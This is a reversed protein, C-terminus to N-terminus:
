DNKYIKCIKCHITKCSVGNKHGQPRHFQLVKSFVMVMGTGEVLLQCVKYCFRKDVLVRLLGPRPPPPDFVCFQTIIPVQNCLYIYIQSDYQWLSYILIIYIRDHGGRLNYNYIQEYVKGLSDYQSIAMVQMKVTCRDDYIKWM